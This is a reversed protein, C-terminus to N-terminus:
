ANATFPPPIAGSVCYVIEAAELSGLHFTRQECDRVLSLASFAAVKLATNEPLYPHM